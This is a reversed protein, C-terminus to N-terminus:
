PVRGCPCTGFPHIHSREALRICVDPVLWWAGHVGPWGGLFRIGAWGPMREACSLGAPFWAFLEGVRVWTASGTLWVRNVFEDEM